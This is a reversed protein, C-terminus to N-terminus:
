QRFGMRPALWDLAPVLSAHPVGWSHGQGPVIQTRVEMGSRQAAASVEAMWTQVTTEDGGAAFYGASDPYTRQAFLTLPTQAEFAATDGGFAIQVTQARDASIAPEREGALDIFSPYLDPHRTAMQLACTGGFSWGGFAWRRHNADVGLEAVIWAPVDQGLYTDAKAVQSDMCMTNGNVSGNPDVVVTVPALGRHNAAFRDLLQRLEGPGVWDQPSGPQGSVLVLVPLRPPDPADYAPPTYVFAPQAALGSLPAPILASELRGSESPATGDWRAVVPSQEVQSTRTPTAPVQEVDADASVLDAVTEYEEFYRNVSAGVGALMLVACGLAVAKGGWSATALAVATLVLAAVAAGLWAVVPGPIPEPVLDLLDVALPNLSVAALVGLVLAVGVGVARSRGHLVGFVVGVVAVAALALVAVPVAGDTLSLAGM